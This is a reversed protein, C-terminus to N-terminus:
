IIMVEGCMAAKITGDVIAQAECEGLFTDYDTASVVLDVVDGPRVEGAFHAGGIKTARVDFHEDELEDEVLLSFLVVGVQGLMELLLTGPVVPDGPFHGELGIHDDTIRRRAVIFEDDFDAGVLEDVLLMPGDHPLRNDLLEPRDDLATTWQGPEVLPTRRLQRLRDDGTSM